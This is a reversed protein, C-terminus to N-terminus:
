TCSSVSGSLLRRKKKGLYIKVVRDINLDDVSNTNLGVTMLKSVTKVALRNRHTTVTLQVRSFVREVASTSIILSEAISLLKVVNPYMDGVAPIAKSLTELLYKPTCLHLQDKFFEKLDNWQYLTTDEDMNFHATLYSIAADGHFTATDPNVQSLDLMSLHSIVETNELRDEINKTLNDIFTDRANYISQLTQETAIINLSQAVTAVRSTHPADREKMRRLTSLTATVRPEIISLDVDEREFTKTLSALSTCVDCLLHIFYLKEYTKMMKLLSGAPIGKERITKDRGSAVANELDTLIPTYLKRVTQVAVEHSLWRTHVAKKVTLNNHSELDGTERLLNQIANLSESRVTSYHYYKFLATLLEDTNDIMTVSHFAKSVALQLRHNMCHLNIVDPNDRKLLAVVGNKKGVMVSPGDSAFSTMKDLPIAAETLHDKMATYITEATGNSLQIDQLFALKSAGNDIYRCVIALHKRSSIDTYEDVMVGYSQSRKLADHVTTEVVEAQCELFETATAASKYTANKAKPLNQLNTAGLEICLDMLPEYLTKYPLHHKILFYLVKQADKLAEVENKNMTEFAADVGQDLAMEKFVADKHMESQEHNIVVDLRTSVCGVRNWVKSNNRGKTDWKRCLSCYMSDYSFGDSSYEM